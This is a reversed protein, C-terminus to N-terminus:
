RRSGRSCDGDISCGTPQQNVVSPPKKQVSRPDKTGQDIVGMKWISNPVRNTHDKRLHMRFKSRRTAGIHPVACAFESIRLEKLEIARGAVFRYAIRLCAGVRVDIFRQALLFPIGRDPTLPLFRRKSATCFLNARRSHAAPLPTRV